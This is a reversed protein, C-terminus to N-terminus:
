DNLGKGELIRQMNQEVRSLRTKSQKPQSFYLIYARQRGPTLNEFAAKLAPSEDLKQRLEEPLSFDSSKKFSVKLGKKETEIAELIYAKLTTEMGAIDTDATFRVQRGAQVNGTQQVLIGGPDTMLAGKFFLLACYDKFGHMLVINRGNQTYCPVGWKVDEKLPCENLIKRLIQFSERWRGANEIFEEIRPDM